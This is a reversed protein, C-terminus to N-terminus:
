CFGRAKLCARFQEAVYQADEDTLLTHMPLTIENAFYDYANPYDQIAFGLNRYATMMPLPKFHVNCAVGREAMDTIVASRAEPTMGPVRTLYLHYNGQRDPQQHALREVGLPLLVADYLESSRRRRATLEGFRELQKLGLAATLDTMNCKYAPEAIDYEWAGPQLKARADKSQGHLSLLQFQRYLEGSDLGERERWVVAGGEATTLNKVAHFSFTTFDALTGVRRGHYAAGFSHAADAMVIPRDFLKQLATQPRYLAKKTEVAAFVADYDCPVGGIDVPVVVKTRETIAAALREHNMECSDKGCDVMVLKAGVHTVVSATATYTYAPVIVEDGPGVGLLRLTLEMSATASNLCVAHEVGCYAAINSEFQKTRPGTTIWGSRLADVVEQIELESIDPPSFPIKKM